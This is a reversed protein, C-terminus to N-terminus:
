LELVPGDQGASQQRQIELSASVSKQWRESILQEFDEPQESINRPERELQGGLELKPRVPPEVLSTIQRLETIVREHVAQYETFALELNAGHQRSAAAVRKLDTGHQGSAATNGRLRETISNLREIFENNPGESIKNVKNEGKQYDPKIWGKEIGLEINQIDNRLNSEISQMTEKIVDAPVKDLTGYISELDTQRNDLVEKVYNNWKSHSGLHFLKVDSQEYAKVESPVGILNPARDIDYKIRQIVEQVLEQTQAVADPLLHHIQYGSPLKGYAGEYNQRMRYPNSIRNDNKSFDISPALQEEGKPSIFSKQPAEPELAHQTDDSDLPGQKAFGGLTEKPVEPVHRTDYPRVEHRAFGEQKQRSAVGLNFARNAQDLAQEVGPEIEVRKNAFHEKM